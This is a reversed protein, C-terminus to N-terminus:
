WSPRSGQRRLRLGEPLVRSIADAPAAAAQPGDVQRVDDLAGDDGGGLAPGSVALLQDRGRDQVPM